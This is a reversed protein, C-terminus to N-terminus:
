RTNDKIFTAIAAVVEEEIGYFTHHSRPVCPNRSAERGGAFYQVKANPAATAADVIRQAGDPPTGACGDDRHAVALLPVRLEDLGFEAVSPGARPRTSSSLLVVGAINRQRQVAYHAASRTGLSIGVVWVPLGRHAKLAALAADIDAMHEPSARFRPHMGGRFDTQDSPADMLAVMLGHKAFLARSVSMFGTGSPDGKGPGGELLLVIASARDPESLHLDVTVGPRPALSLVESEAAEAVPGAALASAM